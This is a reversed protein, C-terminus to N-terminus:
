KSAWVSEVSETETYVRDSRRKLRHEVKKMKREANELEKTCMVQLAFLQEKADELQDHKPRNEKIQTLKSTLEQIRNGFEFSM